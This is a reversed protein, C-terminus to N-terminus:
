GGQDIVQRYEGPSPMLLVLGVLVALAFPVLLVALSCGYAVPWSATSRERITGM